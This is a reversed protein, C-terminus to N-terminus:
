SQALVSLTGYRDSVWWYCFYRNAGLVEAIALKFICPFVVLKVSLPYSVCLRDRCQM